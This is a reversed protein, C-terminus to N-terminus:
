ARTREGRPPPHCRFFLPRLVHRAQFQLNAPRLCATFASRAGFHIGLAGGVSKVTPQVAFAATSVSQEVPADQVGEGSRRIM